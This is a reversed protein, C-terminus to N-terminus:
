KRRAARNRVVYNISKLMEGTDVLPKALMLSPGYGAARRNLEAQAGKRGKAARKRVTYDALAPPIGAIIVKQISDVTGLGVRQYGEAVKNPQGALVYQATKALIETNKANANEIGPIMFPRAPINAEPAGNDHIYGLTANTIPDPGATPDPPRDTTDEPFGVLVEDRALIDLAAKLAPMGDFKVRLGNGGKFWKQAM